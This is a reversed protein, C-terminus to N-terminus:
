VRAELHGTLRAVERNIRGLGERDQAVIGQDHMRRAVMTVVARLACLNAFAEGFIKPDVFPLYDGILRDAHLRYVFSDQLHNLIDVLPRDHFNGYGEGASALRCTALEGNAKLTIHPSPRYFGACRLSARPADAIGFPLPGGSLAGNGLDVFNSVINTPDFLMRLAYSRNGHIRSALEGLIPMIDQDDRALLAVRPELGAAQVLSFGALIRDYLGAQGRSRDHEGSEGDISFSLHTLGHDKLDALYETVSGYVKGAAEFGAQGLFWGNSLLGVVTAGRARLRAALELWGDGYRSVEGGIFAFQGIGLEGLCDTASALAGLDSETTREVGANYCHACSFNCRTTYEIVAQRLNAIPNRRLRRAVARPDAGEPLIEVYGKALLEQQAPSAVWPVLLRSRLAVLLSGPDKSSLSLRHGANTLALQM